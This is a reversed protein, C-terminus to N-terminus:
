SSRFWNRKSNCYVTSCQLAASKSWRKKLTKLTFKSTSGHGISFLDRLGLKLNKNSIMRNKILRIGLNIIQPETYPTDSATAMESLDEIQDFLNCIPETIDFIQAKLKNEAEQLADLTVKGYRQFLATLITPIPTQINNSHHNVFQKLYQPPVARRLQSLLLKELEVMERFVRKAEKHEEHMRTAAVGTTGAPIVLVPPNLYRVYPVVSVNIYETPTVILGLHGNMGGGLESPIASANAKLEAKIVKLSEYSLKGQIKTLVPYVFQESINTTSM